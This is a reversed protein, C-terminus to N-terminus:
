CKRAVGVVEARGTCSLLDRRQSLGRHSCNRSKWDWRRLCSMGWSKFRSVASPESNARGICYTRALAPCVMSPEAGLVPPCPLLHGPFRPRISHRVDKEGPLGSGFEHETRRVKPLTWFRLPRHARSTICDSAGRCPSGDRSIAFRSMVPLSTSTLRFSLCECHFGSNSAQPPPISAWFCFRWSGRDYPVLRRLGKMRRRWCHRFRNFWSWLHGARLRQTGPMTRCLDERTGGGLIM